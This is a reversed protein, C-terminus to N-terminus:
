EGEMSIEGCEKVRHFRNAFPILLKQMEKVEPDDSIMRCIHYALQRPLRSCVKIQLTKCGLFYVSYDLNAWRLDAERLDAGRLNAGRLDAERLDARQGCNSDNLWLKHKELIEVINM